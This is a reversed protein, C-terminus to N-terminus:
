TCQEAIGSSSHSVSIVVEAKVLSALNVAKISATFRASGNAVRRSPMGSRRGSRVCILRGPVALRTALLLNLPAILEREEDRCDSAYRLESRGYETQTIKNYPM